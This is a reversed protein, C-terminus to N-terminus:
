DRKAFKFHFELNGNLMVVIQDVIRRVLEDDYRELEVPQREIADLVAQLERRRDQNRRAAQEVADVQAQSDAKEKTMAKFKEDYISSAASHSVLLLNPMFRRSTPSAHRWTRNPIVM